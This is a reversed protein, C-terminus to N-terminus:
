TETEKSLDKKAQECAARIVSLAHDNCSDIDINMKRAFLNMLLDVFKSGGLRTNGNTSRVHYM